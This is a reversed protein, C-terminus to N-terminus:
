RLFWTQGERRILESVHMRSLTGTLTNDSITMGFDRRISKIMDSRTLGKPAAYELSSLIMERVPPATTPNAARLEAVAGRLSAVQEEILEIRRAIETAIKAAHQAEM